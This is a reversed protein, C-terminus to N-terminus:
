LSPSNKEMALQLDILKELVEPTSAGDYQHLVIEKVALKYCYDIVGFDSKAKVVRRTWDPHLKNVYITGFKPDFRSRSKPHENDFVEEWNIGYASKLSKKRPGSTVPPKGTSRKMSDGEGGFVAGTTTGAPAELDAKKTAEVLARIRDFRLDKLAEDLRSALYKLM